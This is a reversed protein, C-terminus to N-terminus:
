EDHSIERKKNCMWTISLLMLNVIGWYDWNFVVNWRDYSIDLVINGLFTYPYFDQWMMKVVALNVVTLIIAFLWTISRRRVVSFVCLYMTMMTICYCFANLINSLAIWVMNPEIGAQLIDFLLIEMDTCPVKLNSFDMGSVGAIVIIAALLFVFYTVSCAAGATIVYGTWADRSKYRIVELQKRQNVASILYLVSLPVMFTLFYKESLVLVLYGTINVPIVGGFNVFYEKALKALYFINLVAICLVGRWNLKYIIKNWM